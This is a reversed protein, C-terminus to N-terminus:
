HHRGIALVTRMDYEEVARRGAQRQDVVPRAEALARRAAARGPKIVNRDFRFLDDSMLIQEVPRSRQSRDCLENMAATSVPIARPASAWM